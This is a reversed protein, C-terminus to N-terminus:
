NQYSLTIIDRVLSQPGFLSLYLLRHIMQYGDDHSHLLLLSELQKRYLEWTFVGM